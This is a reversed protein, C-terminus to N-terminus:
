NDLGYKEIEEKVIFGKKTLKYLKHMTENPNECEILGETELEKMTRSMHPRYIPSTQKLLESQTQYPKEILKFFVDKRYKSRLVFTPLHKEKKEM